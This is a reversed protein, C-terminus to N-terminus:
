LLDFTRIPSSYRVFLIAIVSWFMWRASDATYRATKITADSADRQWVALRRQLEANAALHFEHDERTVLQDVIEDLSKTELSKRDAEM